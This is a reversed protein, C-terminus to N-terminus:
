SPNFFFCFLISVIVSSIVKLAKTIQNEVTKPSISLSEAIEKHSLKEFRSLVFVERCRGPLRDIAGDIKIRLESYELDSYDESSLQVNDLEVIVPKKKRLTDICRNRVMTAFYGGITGEKLKSRNNWLKILCDQVIDEAESKDNLIRHARIVSNRYNAKFFTNLDQQTEIKM